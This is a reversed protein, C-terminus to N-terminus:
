NVFQTAALDRWRGHPEHRFYVVRSRYDIAMAGAGALVDMGVLLTPKGTLGWLTFVHFDGIYARVNSISTRGISVRPTWVANTAVLPKGATFLFDGRREAFSARDPRLAERFATNALTVNSGTDLLIIIAVGGISGDLVFSSGYQLRGHAAIWDPAPAAADVIRACHHEFDLELRQSAFSDVGLFGRQGALVEGDLLPLEVNDLAAAGSSLAGVRALPADRVGDISHVEGVGQRTMGLALALQSSVVSRNAGTDVIFPFPGAGNVFVPAVLRGAPDLNLNVRGSRGEAFPIAPLPTCASGAESGDTQAWTSAARASQGGALPAALVLM